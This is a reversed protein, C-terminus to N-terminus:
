YVEIERWVGSEDGASIFEWDVINVDRVVYSNVGMIYGDLELAAHGSGNVVVHLIRTGHIGRSNLERRMELAFDECDGKGTTPLAWWEFEGYQEFDGQYEFSAHVKDLADQLSCFGGRLRYEYCGDPPQVRRGEHISACGSLLLTITLLIRM